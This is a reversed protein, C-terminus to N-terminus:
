LRKKLQEVRAEIRLVLRQRWIPRRVAIGGEPRNLLGGMAIMTAASLPSAAFWYEEAEESTTIWSEADNVLQEYEPPYGDDQPDLELGRLQEAYTSGQEILGRIEDKANRADAGRHDTQVPGPVVVAAVGGAGKTKALQELAVRESSRAADRDHRISAVQERAEQLQKTLRVAVARQQAAGQESARLEQELEAERSRAEGLREEARRVKESMEGAWKDYSEMIEEQSIRDQLGPEAEVQARANSKRYIPWRFAFPLSAIVAAVRHRLAANLILIIGVLGLGFAAASLFPVAPDYWNMHAPDAHYTFGLVGGLIATVCAIWAGIWEISKPVLEGM